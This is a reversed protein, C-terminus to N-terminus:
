LAGVTPSTAVTTISTAADASKAIFALRFTRFYAHRGSRMEHTAAPLIAVIRRGYPFALRKSRSAKKRSPNFM